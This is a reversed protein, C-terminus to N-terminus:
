NVSSMSYTVQYGSYDANYRILRGRDFEMKKIGAVRENNVMKDIESLISYPRFLGTGHLNWIENHILIDIVLSSDKIGKNENALKFNDFYISLFSSQASQEGPIKPMPYIHTHLLEFRQDETLDVESLPDDVAYFLLKCLDQNEILVSFINTVYQNLQEFKAM